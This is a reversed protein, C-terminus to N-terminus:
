IRDRELLPDVSWPAYLRRLSEDQEREGKVRLRARTDEPVDERNWRALVALAQVRNRPDDDAIADEIIELGEGPYGLLLDLVEFMVRNRQEVARECCPASCDDCGRGIAALAVRALALYGPLRSADIDWSVLYWAFGQDVHTRLYRWVGPFPDVGLVQEGCCALSRVSEPTPRALASAFADRWRADDRLSRNIDLIHRADTSAWPLSVGLLPDFFDNVQCTVDWVRFDPVRDAAHRFWDFLLGPARSDDRIDGDRSKRDFLKSLAENAAFFRQDEISEAVLADLPDAGHPDADHPGAGQPGTREPQSAGGPPEVVAAAASEALSGIVRGDSLTVPSTHATNM